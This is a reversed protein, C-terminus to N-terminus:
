PMEKRMARSFEIRAYQMSEMVSGEPLREGTGVKTGLGSSEQVWEGVLAPTIALSPTVERVGKWRSYLQRLVDHPTVFGIKRDPYQIRDDEKALYFQIFVWPALQSQPEGQEPALGWFNPLRLVRAGLSVALEEFDRNVLAYEEQHRSHDIVRVTGLVVTRDGHNRIIELIENNARWKNHEIRSRIDGPTGVLLILGDRDIAEPFDSYSSMGLSPEGSFEEVPIDRFKAVNSISKLVYSRAGVLYLHM